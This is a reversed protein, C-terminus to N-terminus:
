SQWTGTEIGESRAIEEIGPTGPQRKHEAAHHRPERRPPQAAAATAPSKAQQGAGQVKTKVLLCMARALERTAGTFVHGTRLGRHHGMRKGHRM